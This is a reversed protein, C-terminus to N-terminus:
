MTWKNGGKKQISEFYARLGISVGLAISIEIGFWVIIGLLIKTIIM